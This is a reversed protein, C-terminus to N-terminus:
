QEGALLGKLAGVGAVAVRTGTPLNARLVAVADDTSAVAVEQFRFGKDTAVFVGPVGSVYALAAAPVRVLGSAGAGNSGRLKLTVNVSEGARLDGRRELSARVRVGATGDGSPAVGIVTGSAGRPVIEIRDGITPVPVDRGVLLDLELAAPDVIRFLPAAAEVRAGPVANVESVVGGHNAILQAEGGAGTFAIGASALEARRAKAMANAEAARAQTAQWRSGAIIGDDFLAKDRALSQQALRAQSNAETLARSAEFLQPSLFGALPQSPRVTQGLSVLVRPVVGAYPAAVVYQADPKFVVRAHTGVELGGSAAVLSFRVGLARAQEASLSAARAGPQATAWRLPFATLAISAGVVLIRKLFM